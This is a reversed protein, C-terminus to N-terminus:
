NLPGRYETDAPLQEAGKSASGAAATDDTVLPGTYETTVPAAADADLAANMAAYEAERSSPAAQPAGAAPPEPATQPEPALPSGAANASIDSVPHSPPEAAPGSALTSDVPPPGHPAPPTDPTVASEPDSPLEPLDLRFAKPQCANYDMVETLHKVQGSETLVDGAGLYMGRDTGVLVDGPRIDLTSVPNGLGDLEMGSETAADLIPKPNEPSAQALRSMMENLRPDTTEVVRENGDIMLPTHVPNQQGDGDPDANEKTPAVADADMKGDGDKDLLKGDGGIAGPRVPDGPKPSNNTVIATSDAAAAVPPTRVASAETGLPPAADPKAPGDHASSLDTGMPESPNQNGLTNALNSLGSTDPMSPTTMQPMSMQPTQTSAPTTVNQQPQPSEQEPSPEEGPTDGPGDGLSPSPSPDGSPSPSPSESPFPAAPSQPLSLDTVGPKPVSWDDLATKLTSAHTGNSEVAARVKDLEATGALVPMATTDLVWEGTTPNKSWLAAIGKRSTVIGERFAAFASRIDAGADGLATSAKSLAGDDGSGSDLADLSPGYNKNLLSMITQDQHVSLAERLEATTKATDTTLTDFAGVTTELNSFQSPGDAGGLHADASGNADEPNVQFAANNLLTLANDTAVIAADHAPFGTLPLWRTWPATPAMDVVPETPTVTTAPPLESSPAEVPPSDPNDAPAQPADGNPGFFRVDPQGTNGNTVTAPSGTDTDRRRLENLRDSVSNLRTLESPTLRSKTSLRSLQSELNALQTREIDTLTM